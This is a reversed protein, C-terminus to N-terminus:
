LNPNGNLKNLQLDIESDEIKRFLMEVKDIRFNYDVNEYINDLM